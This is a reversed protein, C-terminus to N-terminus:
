RPISGPVDSANLRPSVVFGFVFDEYRYFSQKHYHKSYERANFWFCGRKFLTKKESTPFVISYVEFVMKEIETFFHPM